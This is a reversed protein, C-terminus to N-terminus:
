GNSTCPCTITHSYYIYRKIKINAIEEVLDLAEIISCNSYRGGGMNYVEGSTPKKFFEWFSSVLDFSHM